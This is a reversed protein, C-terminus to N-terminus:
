TNINKVLLMQRWGYSQQVTERGLEERENLFFRAGKGYSYEDVRSIAVTVTLVQRNRLGFFQIKVWTCGTLSGADSLHIRLKFYSM